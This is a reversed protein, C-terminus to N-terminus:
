KIRYANLGLQAEGVGDAVFGALIRAGNEQFHTGDITDDANVKFFTEASGATPKPCIAKLYTHAKLGLDVVAVNNVKGLDIMAQGYNALSRGGNCYASNRPPPTVLVPIAKKAVAADIYEQIYTKFDTDAAAYYPYTVGNFDYTATTNSDNTGFQVFLYDGPKLLNAITTLRGEQIFHLATRGGIANDIITAKTSYLPQLMQGWGAQSKPNNPDLTYVSVTSDGALYVSLAALTGSSGGAAAGGSAAGGSAKSGGASTTGGASSGGNSKTGGASTTGGASSGASSKAGGTANQGGNATGGNSSGLPGGASGGGQNASSAGAAGAANTVGGTPSGLSGAAGNAAGGSAPAGGSMPSGGSGTGSTGTAGGLGAGGSGSSTGGRSSSGASAGAGGNGDQSPDPTASCALLFALAFATSTQPLARIQM